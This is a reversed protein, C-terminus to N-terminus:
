SRGRPPRTGAASRRRSRGPRWRRSPRRTSGRRTRATTVAGVVFLARARMTRPGEKHRRLCALAVSLAGTTRAVCVPGRQGGQGARAGRGCRGTAPAASGPGPASPQEAPMSSHRCRGRDRDRGRGRHHARRRLLVGGATSFVQGCREAADTCSRRAPGWSLGLRDGRTAPSRLPVRNAARGGAPQTDSHAGAPSCHCARAARHPPQAASRMGPGPWCTHAACACEALRAARACGRM